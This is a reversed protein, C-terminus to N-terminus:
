KEMMKRLYLQRAKCVPCTCRHEQRMKLLEDAYEKKHNAAFNWWSVALRNDEVCQPPDPCQFPPNEM